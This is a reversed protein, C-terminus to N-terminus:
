NNNNNDINGRESRAYEMFKDRIIGIKRDFPIQTGFELLNTNEREFRRVYGDFNLKVRLEEESAIGDRYLSAVETRSLHRYPELESMILLRQLQTPDHRYETEMIQTQLADLEAESAGSQAAIRYRERLQNADYIYFETGLSIRASIFTGGYRM